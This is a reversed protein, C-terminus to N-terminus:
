YRHHLLDIAVAVAAAVSEVMIQHVVVVVVAQL